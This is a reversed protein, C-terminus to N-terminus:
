GHPHVSNPELTLITTEITQDGARGHFEIRTRVPFGLAPAFDLDVIRQSSGGLLGIERHIPVIEVECGSIARKAPEGVSQVIMEVGTLVGERLVGQRYTAKAGPALSWPDGEGPEIRFTLAGSGDVPGTEALMQRDYESRTDQVAGDKHIVVLTRAGRTVSLALTASPGDPLSRQSGNASLPTAIDLLKACDGANAPAALVAFLLFALIPRM